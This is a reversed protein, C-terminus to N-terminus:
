RTERSIEKLVKETSRALDIKQWDNLNRRRGASEYIFLKEHLDDDFSRVEISPEVGIMKCVEYRHHGDLLIGEKNVVLAYYLGHQKISEKLAQFENTLMEPAMDRYEQSIKIGSNPLTATLRKERELMNCKANVYSEINYRQKDM